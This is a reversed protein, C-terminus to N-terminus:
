RLAPEYIGIQAACWNMAGQLFPDAAGMRKELVRVLEASDAVAERTKRMIRAKYSWFMRQRILSPADMWGEIVPHLKRIYMLQNALLWDSLKDQADRDLTEMDAILGDLAVATLQKKEMVLIALLKANVAAEPWLRMALGHDNGLRKALDRIEAMRTNEGDIVQRIGPDS